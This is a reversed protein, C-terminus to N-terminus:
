KGFFSMYSLTYSVESVCSRNYDWQQRRRGSVTAQAEHHIGELVSPGAHGNAVLCKAFVGGPDRKHSYVPYVFDMKKYNPNHEGLHM